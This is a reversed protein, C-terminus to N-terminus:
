KAAEIVKQAEVENMYAQRQDGEILMTGPGYSEFIELRLAQDRLGNILHIRRVGSQLADKCNELKVQMGGTVTGDAIYGDIEEATIMLATEGNIQVGDVDSMFILKHAKTAVSLATAVTDANINCLTKDNGGAWALCPAAIFNTVKFMRHIPRAYGQRVDGVFGFDIPTKARLSVDLWDHPVANLSIGDLDHAAMSEYVKLSLHGGLVERMIDLDEARTVRRGEHKEASLGRAASAEDIARGGGYILLVKIGHLTLHKIDLILGDRAADDEIVKGGAKVVFLNDKFKTEYFANIFFNPMKASPM